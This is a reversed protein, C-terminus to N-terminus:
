RMTQLTSRSKPRMESPVYRQEARITRITEVLKNLVQSKLLYGAAGAKLAAAAQVDGSYTTL